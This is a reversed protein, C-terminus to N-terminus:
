QEQGREREGGPPHRAANGDWGGCAAVPGTALVQGPLDGAPPRGFGLDAPQVRVELPEERDDGDADADREVRVTAVDAAVPLERPDELEGQALVGGLGPGTGAVQREPHHAVISLLNRAVLQHHLAGATASLRHEVVAIADDVGVAHRHVNEPGRRGSNSPSPRIRPATPANM